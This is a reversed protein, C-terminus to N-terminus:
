PRASILGSQDASPARAASQGRGLVERLVVVGGVGLMAVLMSGLVDGPYHVGVYVRSFAILAACILLLVGVRRSLFALVVLAVAFAATAHDSPFSQGPHHPILPRVQPHATFPRAEPHVAAAVLGLAYSAVLAAATWLGDQVARRFGHTRLRLLLLVAPAGLVAFLLYQAALGMVVDVSRHGALGHIESFLWFNM